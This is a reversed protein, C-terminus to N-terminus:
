LSYDLTAQIAARVNELPTEPAMGGATSLWLRGKPAEKIIEMSKEYIERPTKNLMDKIPHLNGMFVIHEDVKPALQDLPDGFHTISTNFQSLLDGVHIQRGENHYLVFKCDPFESLIRRYYPLSFEEFADRGIQNSTHDPFYIKKLKGNVKEQEKLSFLIGETVVDMLQHILEPEEYLGLMFNTMSVLLCATENPGLAYGVGDLFGYDDIYHRPLHKWMYEYQRLMEPLLSDKWNFTIKPIDELENVVPMARPADNDFYLVRSGFMTPEMVAGFDPWVGPVIWADPFTDVAKMQIKMKREPNLYFDKQTEGVSSTIFPAPGWIIFPARVCEGEGNLIKMANEVIPKM